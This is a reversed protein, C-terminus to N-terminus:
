AKRVLVVALIRGESEAVPIASVVLTQEGGNSRRVWRAINSAAPGEGRSWGADVLAADYFQEVQEWAVSEPMWYYQIEATKPQVDFAQELAIVLTDLAYEEPGEYVTLEPPVPIENLAIPPGASGCGALILLAFLAISLLFVKM